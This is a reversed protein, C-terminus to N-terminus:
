ITNPVPEHKEVRSSPEFKHPEQYTIIEKKEKVSIKAVDKNIFDREFQQELKKALAKDKKEQVVSTKTGKIIQPHNLEEKTAEIGQKIKAFAEKKQAEKLEREYVAM